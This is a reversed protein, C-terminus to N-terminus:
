WSENFTLTTGDTDSTTTIAGEEINSDAEARIVDLEEETLLDDEVFEPETVVGSVFDDVLNNPSMNASKYSFLADSLPFRSLHQYIDPSIIMADSGLNYFSSDGSNPICRQYTIIMLPNRSDEFSGNIFNVAKNSLPLVGPIEKSYEMYIKSLSPYEITEIMTVPKGDLWFDTEEIPVTYIIAPEDSTTSAVIFSFPMLELSKHPFKPLKEGTATYITDLLRTKGGVDLVRRYLSAQLYYKFKKYSHQFNEPRGSITKFDFPYVLLQDDTVRLILMDILVKHAYGNLPHYLPLQYIVYYDDSNSTLFLSQVFKIDDVCKKIINYQDSSIVTRGYSQILDLWYENGEKVINRHIADNGWTNNWNHTRASECIKEKLSEDSLELHTSNEMMHAIYDDFVAKIISMISASPKVSLTSIYYNQLFAQDDYCLWFDVAKGILFHEPGEDYYLIQENRSDVEKQKMYNKFGSIGGSDIAKLMSYNIGDFQYYEDIKNQPVRIVKM